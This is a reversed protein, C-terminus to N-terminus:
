THKCKVNIYTFFHSLFIVLFLSMSINYFIFISLFILFTLIFKYFNFQESGLYSTLHLRSDVPSIAEHHHTHQSYSNTKYINMDILTRVAVTVKKM